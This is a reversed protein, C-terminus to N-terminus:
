EPGACQPLQRPQYEIISTTAPISTLPYLGPITDNISGLRYHYAANHTVLGFHYVLIHQKLTLQGSDYDRRRRPSPAAYALHFSATCSARALAPTM